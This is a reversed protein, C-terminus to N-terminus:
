SARAGPSIKNWTGVQMVLYGLLALADRAGLILHLATCDVRAAVSAVLGVTFTWWLTGLLPGPAGKKKKAAEAM